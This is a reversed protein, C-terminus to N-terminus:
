DGRIFKQGFHTLFAGACGALLWIPSALIAMLVGDLMSIGAIMWPVVPYGFPEKRTNELRAVVSIVLVYIFQAIGAIIVPIAMVGAIAECVVVFVMFRCGAMLLVTWPRDAHLRDYAIIMALLVFGFLLGKPSPMAALAALGLTFLITTFIRAKRLSMRGSPIPRFAKGARDRGADCIDNLCMGGSYFLSTSLALALFSGWSFQAGSLVLAALVNTWVTPLNSIRCLDLYTKVASLRRRGM